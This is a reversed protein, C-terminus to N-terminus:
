FCKNPDNQITPDIQNPHGHYFAYLGTGILFFLLAGIAAMIGNTWISRAAAQTDKTTLYRQVVAQDSTYSSLNQGLGGLIIVWLALTTFSDPGFDLSMLKMKDNAKARLM